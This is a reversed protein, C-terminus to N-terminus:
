SLFSILLCNSVWSSVQAPVRCPPPLPPPDVPVWLEGCVQLRMTETLFPVAPTCFSGSHNIVFQSLHAACFAYFPSFKLVLFVPSKSYSLDYSDNQCLGREFFSCVSRALYPLLCCSLAATSLAAQVSNQSLVCAVPTPFGNGPVPRVLGPLKFPAAWGVACVLSVGLRGGSSWHCLSFTLCVLVSGVLLARVQPSLHVPSKTM